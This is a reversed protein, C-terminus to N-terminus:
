QPNNKDLYNQYAHEMRNEKAMRYGAYGPILYKLMKGLGPTESYEMEEKLEKDSQPSYLSGVGAGLAQSLAFTPLGGQIADLLGHTPVTVNVDAHKNMCTDYSLSACKAIGEKNAENILGLLEAQKTFGLIFFEKSM